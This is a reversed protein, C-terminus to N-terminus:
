FVKTSPTKKRLEVYYVLRGDDIHTTLCIDPNNLYEPHDSIQDKPIKTIVKKEM